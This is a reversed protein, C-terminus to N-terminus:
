ISYKKGPFFRSVKKIYNSYEPYKESSLEESLASSGQFLVILLIAGIISKEALYGFGAIGICIGALFSSRYIKLKEM